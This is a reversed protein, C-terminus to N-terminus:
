SGQMIYRKLLVKDWSETVQRFFKKRKAKLQRLSERIDLIMTIRRYDCNLEGKEHTAVPQFGIVNMHFRFPSTAEGDFVETVFHTYERKVTEYAAAKILMMVCSIRRRYKRKIAFKGIEAIKNNKIFEEVNLGNDLMEYDYQSAAELPLDFWM